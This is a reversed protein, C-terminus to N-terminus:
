HAVTNRLCWGCERGSLGGGCVRRSQRIMAAASTGECKWCGRQRQEFPWGQVEDDCTNCATCHRHQSTRQRKRQASCADHAAAAGAAAARQAHRASGGGGGGSGSGCSHALAATHSLRQSPEASLKIFAKVLLRRNTICHRCWLM